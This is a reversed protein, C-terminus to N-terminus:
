MEFIFNIDFLRKYDKFHCLFIDVKVSFFQLKSKM